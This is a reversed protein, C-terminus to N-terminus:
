RPSPQAVTDYAALLSFLGRDAFYANPWRQHDAGRSRGRGKRRKRLISRLRMRIWGDLDKFTGRPSYQFYPFWGRLTASNRRIIEDLSHGNARHTQSRLNEKLKRLSKASPWKYGREFHYGLFDFGGPQTADVIRTKEPHLSLGMREVWGKVKALAERAESESWCLIVFDDAYRVMRYGDEAMEHDLPDLYINALLPSCVAGQPSGAEPTWSELGELVDQKLFQELLHLVKGDSIKERIRSLLIEHDLTDFYRRIDADVVWVQGEELGLEVEGLADQCGREPRFGYSHAAFELEFIPELVMRLATQVVRDRVTPIGLPRM